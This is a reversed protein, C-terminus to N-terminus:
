SRPGYLRRLASEPLSRSRRTNMLLTATARLPLSIIAWLLGLASPRAAAPVYGYELMLKGCIRQNIWLETRSLGSRWGGVVEPDVGTGPRLGPRNSSSSRNVELISEDFELGMASLLPGIAERPDDVLEEFRVHFVRPDVARKGARAASRWLLSATLPHYQLFHRLAIRRTVEGRAEWLTRYWRKQSLLVDRPDRTIVAVVADPLVMLIEPIWVVYRPTKDIVWACDGACDILVRRYVDSAVVPQPLTEVLQAATREHERPHYPRHFGDLAHHLLRSALEEAEAPTLADDQGSPTWFQEFFHIEKLQRVRPHRSLM